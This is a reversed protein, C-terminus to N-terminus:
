ELPRGTTPTPVLGSFGLLFLTRQRWALVGGPAPRLCHGPEPPLGGRRGGGRAAGAGSRPWSQVPEPAATLVVDASHTHPPPTTEVSLAADVSGRNVGLSQGKRSGDGVPRGAASAQSSSSAGKTPSFETRRWRLPSPAPRARATRPPARGEQTSVEPAATVSRGGLAVWPHESRSGCRGRSSLCTDSPPTQFASRTDM